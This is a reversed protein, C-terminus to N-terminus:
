TISKLRLLSMKSYTLTDRIGYVCQFVTGNLEETVKLRINSTKLTDDPNSNDGREMSIGAILRFLNPVPPICNMKGMGPTIFCWKFNNLIETSDVTCTYNAWEGVEAEVIEPPSEIIKTYILAVPLSRLQSAIM